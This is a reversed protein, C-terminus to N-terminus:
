PTGEPAFASRDSSGAAVAPALGQYAVQVPLEAPEDDGGVRVVFTVSHRQSGPAVARQALTFRDGADGRTVTLGSDDPVRVDVVEFPRSTRSRLTLERRESQGLTLLGFPVFPPSVAVPPLVDVVAPLYGLPLPRGEPSVGSLTIVFEHKGASLDPKPVITLRFVDDLREV